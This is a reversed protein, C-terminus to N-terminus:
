CLENYKGKAFDYKGLKGHIIKLWYKYTLLLEIGQVDNHQIATIYQVQWGVMGNQWMLPLLFPPPLSPPGQWQTPGIRTLTSWVM